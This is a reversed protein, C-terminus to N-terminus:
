FLHISVSKPDFNLRVTAGIEYREKKAVPLVLLADGARVSCEFRDGLYDVQEITAAIQNLELEAAPLLQIDEPRASLRVNAGDALADGTENELAIRAGGALEVWSGAASKRLIGDLSVSRGLFEGAFASAPREYVEEPSGVQEFRGRNVVAIRDSLAMAETQDHTVYLVTLALKRQLSRLEFRMQERLKADLNSLPEDLLLVAPEYVLARALAVRQQQGGSLETAGRQSFGGLGVSELAHHVRERIAASPQRRVRLLFAVNEFVSLHPWIAYSQFVMGLRRKEPPLFIGQGPAAAIKGDIRIEGGDPEELGAVLRLTTTKGCGSPGLLTFIEGRAISFSVGDVANVAGFQKVVRRFELVTTTEPSPSRRPSHSPGAGV